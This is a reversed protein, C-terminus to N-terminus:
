AVVPPPVDEVPSIIIRRGMLASFMDIVCNMLYEFVKFKVGASLIAAVPGIPGGTTYHALVAMSLQRLENEILDSLVRKTRMKLAERQEANMSWGMEAERREEEELDDLQNLLEKEAESDLESELDIDSPVASNTLVTLERDLKTDADDFMDDVEVVEMKKAMKQAKEDEIQQRLKQIEEVAIKYYLVSGDDNADLNVKEQDYRQRVVELTDKFTGVMNSRSIVRDKVMNILFEKANNFYNPLGAAQALNREAPVAFLALLFSLQLSVIVVSPFGRM